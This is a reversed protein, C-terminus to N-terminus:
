WYSAVKKDSTVFIFFDSSFSSSAMTYGYSNKSVSVGENFFFWIRLDKITGFCIKIQIGSQAQSQVQYKKKHAFFFDLKTGMPSKVFILIKWDSRIMYSPRQDYQFLKQDSRGFIGLGTVPKKKHTFDLPTGM